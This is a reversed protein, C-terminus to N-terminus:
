LVKHLKKRNVCNSFRSELYLQDTSRILVPTQITQYNISNNKEHAWIWVIFLSVRLDSKSKQKRFRTEDCNAEGIDVMDEVSLLQCRLLNLTRM